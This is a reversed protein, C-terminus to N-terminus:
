LAWKPMKMGLGLSPRKTWLPRPSRRSRDFLGDASQELTFWDITSVVGWSFGYMMGEMYYHFGLWHGLATGLYVPERPNQETLFPLLNPMIPLTQAHAILLLEEESVTLLLISVDDDCKLVWWAQRGGPRGVWRLWEWSKGNNMNEGKYLGKLRIVDGYQENERSIEEEEKEIEPTMPENPDPYGIVFKVEVLHRHSLPVSALPSHNRIFQRKHRSQSRPTSFIHLMLFAAPESTPDTSSYSSLPHSSNSAEKELHNQSLTQPLKLEPLPYGGPWPAQLIGDFLYPAELEKQEPSPFIISVLGHSWDPTYRMAGNHLHHMPPMEYQQMTHVVMVVPAIIGTTLLLLILLTRRHLRPLLYLGHRLV